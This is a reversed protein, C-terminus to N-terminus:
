KRFLKINAEGASFHRGPKPKGATKKWGATKQAWLGARAPAM